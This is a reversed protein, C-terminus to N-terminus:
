ANEVTKAFENAEECTNFYDHYEDCMMNEVYSNQPKEDAEIAYVNVKVAGGDFYKQNVCWFKM